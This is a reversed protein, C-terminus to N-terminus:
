RENLNLIEFQDAMSKLKNQYLNIIYSCPQKKRAPCQRGFCLPYICCKLCEKKDHLTLGFKLNIIDFNDNDLTTINGFNNSDDHLHVTCKGLTGDARVIMTNNKAAYCITNDSVLNSHTYHGCNDMLELFHSRKQEDDKDIEFVRQIDFVFRKDLHFLDYLPLVNVKDIIETANIRIIIKIVSTKVQDKIMTLNNIITNFTGGGNALVRSKDHTAQDGDLTIQYTFVHYKILELMTKVDLLYGNTTISSFYTKKMKKCIAIFEESLEQIINKALLPEGGFWSIHLTRYDPLLQKVISIISKKVKENMEGVIFDEYCYSCRFNCQETPFLILSLCDHNNFINQYCEKIMISDSKDSKHKMIKRFSLKKFIDYDKETYKYGDSMSKKLFEEFIHVQSQLIRTGLYYLTNYILLDGQHNCTAILYDNFEYDM